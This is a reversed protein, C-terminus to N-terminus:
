RSPQAQLSHVPTLVDDEGQVWEWIHSQNLSHLLGPRIKVALLYSFGQAKAFFINIWGDTERDKWRSIMQENM